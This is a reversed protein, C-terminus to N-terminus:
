THYSTMGVPDVQVRMAQLGPKKGIRGLGNIGLKM